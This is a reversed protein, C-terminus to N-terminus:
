ASKTTRAPARSVPRAVPLLQFTISTTGDGYTRILPVVNVETGPNIDTDGPHIPLIRPSSAGAKKVSALYLVSGDQALRQETSEVTAQHSKGRRFAFARELLEYVILSDAGQPSVFPTVTILSGPRFEQGPALPLEIHSEVGKRVVHVTDTYGVEGPSQQAHLVRATFSEGPKLGSTNLEHRM